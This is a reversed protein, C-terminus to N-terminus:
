TITITTNFKTLMEKPPKLKVCCDNTTIFHIRVRLIADLLPVNIKNRIKCKVINMISFTREVIANSLPLSLINMVFKAIDKFIYEGGANQYHLVNVWFEESTTNENIEWNINLINQWQNEIVCLDGEVPVFNIPLESFKPRGIKNLCEKPTFFKHCQVFKFQYSNQGSKACRLITQRDEVNCHAVVEIYRLGFDIDDIGLLALENNLVDTITNFNADTMENLDALFIPKVIFRLSRRVCNFPCTSLPTM